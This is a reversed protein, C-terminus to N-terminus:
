KTFESEWSPENSQEVFSTDTLKESLFESNFVTVTLDEIEEGPLLIGILGKTAAPLIGAVIQIDIM